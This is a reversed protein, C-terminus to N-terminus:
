SAAGRREGSGAASDGRRPGPGGRHSDVHRGPTGGRARRPPRPRRRLAQARVEHPRVGRPHRRAHRPDKAEVGPAGPSTGCCARADHVGPAADRVKREAYQRLLPPWSRATNTPEARAEPLKRAVSRPSGGVPSWSPRKGRPADPEPRQRAAPAERRLLIARVVLIVLARGGRPGIAIWLGPAVLPGGPARPPAAEHGEARRSPATRRSGHARGRLRQDPLSGHAGEEAGRHSFRIPRARAVAVPGLAFSQAQVDLRHEVPATATRSVESVTWARGTSCRTTRPAPRPLARTSGKPLWLAGRCTCTGARHPGHRPRV